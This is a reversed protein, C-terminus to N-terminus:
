DSMSRLIYAQFEEFSVRGDKSSDLEELVEELTAGDPLLGKVLGVESTSGSELPNLLEELERLDLFGSGDLDFISFAVRLNQMVQDRQLDMCGAVFESYEIRGDGNTDLMKVIADAQAEPLGLAVVAQRMEGQTLVGDHNLDWRQFTENLYSLKTANLQSGICTMVCKDLTSRRGLNQALDRWYTQDESPPRHLTCSAGPDDTESNKQTSGLWSICSEHAEETGIRKMEDKELLLRCFDRGDELFILSFDAHKSSSPSTIDWCLAMMNPATFPLKGGSLLEYLMVGISWVDAKVSFDGHWVEPAM